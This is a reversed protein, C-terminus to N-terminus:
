QIFTAFHVLEDHDTGEESSRGVSLVPWSVGGDRASSGRTASNTLMSTAGESSVLLGALSGTVLAGLAALSRLTGASEALVGGVGISLLGSAAVVVSGGEEGGRFACRSGSFLSSAVEIIGRSEAVVLAGLSALARVGCSGLLGTVLSGALVSSLLVVGVLTSSLLTALLVDVLASTKAPTSGITTGIASAIAESTSGVWTEIAVQAEVTTSGEDTLSAIASWESSTSESELCVGKELCFL